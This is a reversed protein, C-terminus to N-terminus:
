RVYGDICIKTKKEFSTKLKLISEILQNYDINIVSMTWESSIEIINSNIRKFVLVRDTSDIPIFAFYDNGDYLSLKYIFDIICIDEIALFIKNDNLITLNAAYAFINSNKIRPTRILKYDFKIYSVNDM